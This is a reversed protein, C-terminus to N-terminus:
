VLVPSFWVVMMNPTTTSDLALVVGYGATDPSTVGTTAPKWVAYSVSGVTVTGPVLVTGVSYTGTTDFPATKDNPGKFLVAYCPFALITVMGKDVFPETPGKHNEMAIGLVTKGSCGEVTYDISYQWDYPTYPLNTALEDIYSGSFSGASIGMPSGGVWLTAPSSPVKFEGFKIAWKLDPRIAM